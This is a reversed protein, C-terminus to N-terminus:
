KTVKALRRKLAAIQAQRSDIEQQWGPIESPNTEEEMHRQCGALDDETDAIAYALAARPTTYFGRPLDAGVAFQQTCWSPTSKLWGYDGSKGSLKGWTVFDLKRTLNVFQQAEQTGLNACGFRSKSGRKARISRVFWEQIESTTKREDDTDAVAVYLPLGVKIKGAPYAQAKPRAM